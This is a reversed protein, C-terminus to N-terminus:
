RCQKTVHIQSKEKLWGLPYSKPHNNTKLVLQKVLSESILNAKSGTDFLTDIKSHKSTVRIQFLEIRKGENLQTINPSASTSAESVKGTTIM